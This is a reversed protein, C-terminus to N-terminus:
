RFKLAHELKIKLAGLNPPKVIYGAVGLPVAQNLMQSSTDASMLLVPTKRLGIVPHARLQKVFELGGVPSMHIDSIIIDPRFSAVQQLGSQGDIAEQVNQVGLRTLLNVIFMRMVGDDDVLLVKADEINM